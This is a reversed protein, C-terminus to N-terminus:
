GVERLAQDRGAILAEQARELRAAKARGESVQRGAEEATKKAEEAAEGASQARREAEAEKKVQQCAHEQWLSRAAPTFRRRM